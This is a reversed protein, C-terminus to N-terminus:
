GDRPWVLDPGHTLHQWRRCVLDLGMEVTARDDLPTSGWGVATRIRTPTALDVLPDGTGYHSHVWLPDLSVEGRLANGPALPRTSPVEIGWHDSDEPPEHMGHLVLLGDGDQLLYPMADSDFVHVTASSNNTAAVRVITGDISAEVSITM